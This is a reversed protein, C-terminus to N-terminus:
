LTLPVEEKNHIPRSDGRVLSQYFDSDKKSPSPYILVDGQGTGVGENGLDRHVVESGESSGDELRLDFFRPTSDKFSSLTYNRVVVPGVQRTTIGVERRPLLLKFIGELDRKFRSGITGRCGNM